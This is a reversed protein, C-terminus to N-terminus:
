QKTLVGSYVKTNLVANDSTRIEDERFDITMTTASFVAAGYQSLNSTPSVAVFAKTLTLTGNSFSGTSASFVNNSLTMLSGTQTVGITYGTLATSPSGNVTVNINGKYNGSYDFAPSPQTGSDKSCSILVFLSIIAVLKKM